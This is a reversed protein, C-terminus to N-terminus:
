GRSAICHPRQQVRHGDTQEDTVNIYQKWLVPSTLSREWSPLGMMRTKQGGAGTGLELKWPFGNLQPTFYVPSNAIKSRFRRKDRFLLLGM